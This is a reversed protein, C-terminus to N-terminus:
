SIKNKLLNTLNLVINKGHGALTKGALFRQSTKLSKVVKMKKEEYFKELLFSGIALMNHGGDLLGDTKDDNFQIKFRGRELPQCQQTSILLGKTRNVMEEPAKELTEYIAATVKNKKSERPNAALGIHNLLLAINTADIICLAKHIKGLTLFQLKNPKLVLSKSHNM